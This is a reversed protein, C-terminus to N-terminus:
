YPHLHGGATMGPRKDDSAENQRPLSLPVQRQRDSVALMYEHTWFGPRHEPRSRGNVARRAAGLSATTAAQEAPSSTISCWTALWGARAFCGSCLTPAPPTRSRIAGRMLTEPGLPSPEM